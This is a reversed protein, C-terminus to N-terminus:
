KITYFIQTIKIKTDKSLQFILKNTLDASFPVGIFCTEVCQNYFPDSSIKQNEAIEEELPANTKDPTIDVSVDAVARGTIANVDAVTMGTILNGTSKEVINTYVLLRKGQSDELFIKVIGQGEIFGSLRLSTLKFSNQTQLLYEQSQDIKLDLKQTIIDSSVYGTILNNPLKSFDTQNIFFIGGVVLILSIVALFELRHWTNNTKPKAM